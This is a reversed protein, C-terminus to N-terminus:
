EPEGNWYREAAADRRWRETMLRSTRESGYNWGRLYAVHQFRYAVVAWVAALLVGVPLWFLEGTELTRIVRDTLIVLIVLIVLVWRGRWNYWAHRDEERPVEITETM